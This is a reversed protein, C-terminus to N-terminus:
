SMARGHPTVAGSDDIADLERLLERGQAFAAPAPPDIWQLELPDTVGAALLELALPALDASTIEPPVNALLHATEHEPWWRYCVGPGLRGARGRRQDASARSV